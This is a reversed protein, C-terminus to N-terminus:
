SKKYSSYLEKLKSRKQPSRLKKLAKFEIQRIRERTVGFERGVEELTYVKGDFLGYRMRIVKEERDTLIALDRDLEKLLSERTTYEHPTMANPDPIFDGLSSDEEEGVPTELSMPERSIRKIYQVRDASLDMKEGIEEDTPERGLDQILQRRIKSMKNITENMHVPIRITRGQDAIARTIAQRIWWTAYTSFKYGKEYDFKDVARMLGMNGEQILDLFLVSGKDYKKAISVVLRYNADVLHDKAIKADEIQDELELITEPSPEIDPNNAFYDLQEQALRGTSVRIALNREEDPKLLPIQGIEKLYLRVSDEVRIDQTMETGIKLLEDENIPDIELSSLSLEDPEEDNDDLLQDDDDDFLPADDDDEDDFSKIANLDSEDIITVGELELRNYLDFFDESDDEVFNLLEDEMLIKDPGSKKILDKVILELKM